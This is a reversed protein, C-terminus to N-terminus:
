TLIVDNPYMGDLIVMDCGMDFLTNAVASTTVTFGKALMGYQHVYDVQQETAYPYQVSCITYRSRKKQASATIIDAETTGVNSICVNTNQKVNFTDLRAQSATFIVSSMMGRNVIVDRIYSYMTWTMNTFTTLDLELCCGRKKAFILAEDLTPIKTGAYENGKWIGFDYTLAQAYTIDAINITSAIETGNANRATRNITADHLVVPVNDSTLRIDLEFIKFGNEYGQLMSPITNEPATKGGGRHGIYKETKFIPNVSETENYYDYILGYVGSFTDDKSVSVMLYEAGDPVDIVGYTPTSVVGGVVYTVAGSAPVSDNGKQFQYMVRSFLKIQKANGVRYKYINYNSDALSYGDGKLKYNAATSYPLERIANKFNLLDAIPKVTSYCKCVSGSVPTSFIVYKAGSPVSVLGEFNGFTSGIRNSNGSSPVSAVAQFQFLDDSIVYILSGETVEFKVLKYSNNSACLGSSQILKWGNASAYIAKDSLSFLEDVTYDLNDGLTRVADGASPYTVGNAGVRIDRLEADATTSGDPLAIITDIRAREVELATESALGLDDSTKNGELTVSNISPKNALTKYDRHDALYVAPDGDVQSLLNAEGDIVVTDNM